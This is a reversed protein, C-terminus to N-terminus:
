YEKIKKYIIWAMEQAPSNTNTKEIKDIVGLVLINNYISDIEEDVIFLLNQGIYSKAISYLYELDKADVYTSFSTMSSRDKSTDSDTM